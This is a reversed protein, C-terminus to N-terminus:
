GAILIWGNSAGFSSIVAAAPFLYAAWGGWLVRAADAFPAQSYALTAAPLLGMVALTCAIYVAAAIVTRLLTARPITKEPTCVHGGLITTCEVGIFAFM